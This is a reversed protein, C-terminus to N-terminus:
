NNISKLIVFTYSIIPKSGASLSNLQSSYSPEVNSIFVLYLSNCTLFEDFTIVNGNVSLSSTASSFILSEASNTGTVGIELSACSAIIGTPITVDFGNNSLIVTDLAEPIKRTRFSIGSNANAANGTLTISTDNTISSIIGILTTGDTKYLADGVSLQSTFNTGVGTVITRNTSNSTTITGTLTSSIWTDNANWNGSARTTLITQGFIIPANLLSFLLLILLKTKSIFPIGFGIKKSSKKLIEKTNRFLLAKFSNWKTELLLM